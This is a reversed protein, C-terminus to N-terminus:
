DQWIKQTYNRILKPLIGFSYPKYVREKWTHAGKGYVGIDVAPINLERMKEYPLPYLQEVLPFNNKMKAIEQPTEDIMLYSSDSLYPFFQKMTFDIKENNKQLVEELDQYVKSDQSISNHPCFPPALFLVVKAENDNVQQDLYDILEFGASRKDLEPNSIIFSDILSQWDIGLDDLHNLYEEFSYVNLKRTNDVEPFNLKSLFKNERQRAENVLKECDSKVAIKLQEIIEFVPKKYTFTNFYMETVKATQVNYFDKQDRLMLCSSPLIEEGSIDEVFDPNNNILLNIRSAILTSDIGAYTNGVHTEIGKIYFCTLTKGAAGYYIYKQTDGAYKPSIFDTNIAVSYQLNWEEQLRKLEDLAAIVGSHDNEEVCNGMFLLNGEQLEPHESFYLLNVINVADGSKMDLAGRGFLWDGTDADNQVERDSDYNTFYQELYTPDLAKEKISGFDELGVTDFHSHYLVTKQIGEKGLFAFINKRGLEDGKIKQTWVWEPHKKFVTFTRLIKELKEVLVVEGKTGNVSKTAVLERTLLEIRQKEDPITELDFASKM